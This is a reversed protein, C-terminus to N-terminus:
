RIVELRIPKKKREHELRAGFEDDVHQWVFPDPVDRAGLVWESAAGCGGGCSSAHSCGACFEPLTRKYDRVESGTVIAAVDTELVDRDGGLASGHLTCHRLRGDPGLAFEQYKTGIACTGFELPALEEVEVACPPVPMTCTFRMPDDALKAFPIAQRFAVLLDDRSPLLEAAHRAAYGAPSFRSLAMHRVGLSRFLAIIEGLRAANKRTIVTCGVVPVGARKMAAIGAITKDFHGKGGVHADHLEANPGDLTCQVYSVQYPALRTAIADDILGGNSIIQIGVKQARVLDLLEFIDKRAFPEGGTITVHDVEIASLVKEVRAHLKKQAGAEMGAGNDERWANYCYDCKQQCHATVEIAVSYVKPRM